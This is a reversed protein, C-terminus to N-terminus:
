RTLLWVVWGWLLSWLLYWIAVIISIFLFSLSVIISLSKKINTLESLVINNITNKNLSINKLEPIDTYMIKQEKQTASQGQLILVHDRFMYIGNTRKIEETIGTMQKSIFVIAGQDDLLTFPDQPLGTEIL